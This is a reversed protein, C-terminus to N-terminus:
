LFVGGDVGLVAGTVYSAEGSVLFSVAGAVDGAEGLRRLPIGAVAEAPSYEGGAIFGPNVMNVRIGYRGETKALTRSLAVLGNKAITYPLTNPTARVTGAQAVGINIIAGGLRRMVPIIERCCLMASTLNSRLIREWMELSTRELLQSEFDGVANVWAGIDGCTTAERVLRRVDEEVTVDGHLHIFREKGAVDGVGDALSISSPHEFRLNDACAQERERHIVIVRFGDRDLRDAIAVGLGRTGGTVVAVVRNM